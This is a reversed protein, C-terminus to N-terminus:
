FPVHEGQKKYSEFVDSRYLMGIVVRPAGPNVVPIGEVNSGGFIHSAQKLTSGPLLLPPHTDCIDGAILGSGLEKQLSLVARLDAISIVGM